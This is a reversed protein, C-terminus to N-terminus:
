SAQMGVASRAAIHHRHAAQARPGVLPVDHHSGKTLEAEHIVMCTHSIRGKACCTCAQLMVHRPVSLAACAQSSAKVALLCGRRTKFGAHPRWCALATEMMAARCYGEYRVRSAARARLRLCACGPCAAASPSARCQKEGWASRSSLLPHPLLCGLRGGVRQRGQEWQACISCENSACLSRTVRRAQWPSVMREQLKSPLQRSHCNQRALHLRAARSPHCRGATAPTLPPAPLLRGARQNTAPRGSMGCVLSTEAGHRHCCVGNQPQGSRQGPQWGSGLRQEPVVRRM